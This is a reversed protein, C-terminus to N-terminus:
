AGRPGLGLGRRGAVADRAWALADYLRPGLLALGLGYLAYRRSWPLHPAMAACHAWAALRQGSTVARRVRVYLISTLLLARWRRYAAAGSRAAICAAWKRDLTRFGQLMVEPDRSLQGSTEEHKIVLVEDTEVFPIGGHALRLLLDYDGFAPLTEDLGGVSELCARPLIVCSSPPAQGRLFREFSALRRAAPMRALRQTSADRRAYGCALACPGPTSAPTGPGLQRELRRPLWEDDSDLFAVLLGRARAIGANRAAAVGRRDPLRVFGLRPDELVDLAAAPDDSSGDDVVLLELDDLTQALVSRVARGLVPARNHSPIVVSVLPARGPLSTM